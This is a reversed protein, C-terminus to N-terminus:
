LPASHNSRWVAPHCYMWLTRHLFRRSMPQSLLPRSLPLLAPCCHLRNDDLSEIQATTRTPKHNGSFSTSHHALSHDKKIQLHEREKEKKHGWEWRCCFVFLMIHLTSYSMVFLPCPINAVPWKINAFTIYWSIYWRSLLCHQVPRNTCAHHHVRGPGHTDLCLMICASIHCSLLQRGVQREGSM